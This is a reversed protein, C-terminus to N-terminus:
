GLQIRRSIFDIQRILARVQAECECIREGVQSIEPRADGCTPPVENDPDSLMIPALRERLVDLHQNAATVTKLLTDLQEVLTPSGNAALETIKTQGGAYNSTWGMTRDLAAEGM